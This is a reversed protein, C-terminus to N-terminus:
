FCIDFFKDIEVRKYILFLENLTGDCIASKTLQKSNQEIDKHKCWIRIQASNMMKRVITIGTPSDSELQDCSTNRSQQCAASRCCIIITQYVKITQMISYVFRLNKPNLNLNMSDNDRTLSDNLSDHNM